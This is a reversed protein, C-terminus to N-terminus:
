QSPLYVMETFETQGDVLVASVSDYSAIYIRNNNNNNNGETVMM